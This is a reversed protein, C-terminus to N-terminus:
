MPDFGQPGSDGDNGGGTGGSGGRGGDRSARAIADATLEWSRIIPFYHRHLKPNDAIFDLFADLYKERNEYYPKFNKDLFCSEVFFDTHQLGFYFPDSEKKIKPNPYPVYKRLYFAVAYKMDVSESILGNLIHTDQHSLARGSKMHDVIGPFRQAFEHIFDWGAGEAPGGTQFVRAM